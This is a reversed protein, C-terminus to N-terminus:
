TGFIMQVKKADTMEREGERERRRRGDAKAGIIIGGEGKERGGGKAKLGREKCRGQLM